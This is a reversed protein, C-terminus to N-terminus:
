SRFYYDPYKNKIYVHSFIYILGFAALAFYMLRSLDASMNKNILIMFLISIIVSLSIPSYFKYHFIDSEKENRFKMFIPFFTLLVIVTLFILIATDAKFIAGLVLFIICVLLEIINDIKGYGLTM